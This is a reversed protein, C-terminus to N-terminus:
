VVLYKCVGIGVVMGIFGGVFVDFPYHLGVYIRSLAVLVAFLIILVKILNYKRFYQRSKVYLVTIISFTTSTHGSPFSNPDVSSQLVNVHDLVLYPRPQRFGVKLCFVIVTTIILSYVCLKILKFYRGLGFVDRYSLIVLVLFLVAIFSFSGFNSLYPMIIDFIPNSLTNNILYFIWINLDM